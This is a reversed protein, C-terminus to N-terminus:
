GACDGWTGWGNGQYVIWAAVATNAELDFIDAEPLGAAQAAEAFTGPDLQFLGITGNSPHIADPDFRSTCWAMRVARNVDGSPFYRSVLERVQVSSLWGTERLSSSTAAATTPVESVAPASGAADTSDTAQGSQAAPVGNIAMAAQAALAGASEGWVLSSNTTPSEEGGTSFMAFGAIALTTVATWGLVYITRHFRM